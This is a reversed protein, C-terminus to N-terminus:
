RLCDSCLGCTLCGDLNNKNPLWGYERKCNLCKFLAYEVMKLVAM